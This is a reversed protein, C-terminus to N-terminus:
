CKYLTQYSSVLGEVGVSPLITYSELFHPLLREFHPLTERRINKKGKYAKYVEIMNELAKILSMRVSSPIAYLVTSVIPPDASKGKCFAIQKPRLLRELSFDDNLYYRGSIKLVYSCENGIIYNMMYHTQTAEGYGKLVSQVSNEIYDLESLNVYRDVSSELMEEMNKDLRSGEVLYIYADPVHNRITYITQLTQKYRSYPTYYSRPGYVLPTSLTQIVSTILFCINM